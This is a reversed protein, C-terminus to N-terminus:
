IQTEYNRKLVTYLNPFYAYGADLKCKPYECGEGINVISHAVDQKRQLLNRHVECFMFYHGEGPAYLFEKFEAISRQRPM